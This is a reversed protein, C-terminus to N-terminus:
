METIQFDNLNKNLESAIKEISDQRPKLNATNSATKMWYDILGIGKTWEVLVYTRFEAFEKGAQMTGHKPLRLRLFYTGDTFHTANFRKYGLWIKIREKVVVPNNTMVLKTAKSTRNM